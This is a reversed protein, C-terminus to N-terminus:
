PNLKWITYTLFAAFSVWTLYPTMLYGSVRDLKFFSITTGVILGLLMLIEVLAAGPNHMGFFIISWAINFALQTIFLYVAIKVRERKMGLRWIRYVAIGMLAFLTTWVPGFVWAPPNWAPKILGAYWTPIESFTFLSGLFGAGECMMVAISLEVWSFRIRTQTRMGDTHFLSQNTELPPLATYKYGM